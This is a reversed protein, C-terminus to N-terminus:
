KPTDSTFLKQGRGEGLGVGYQRFHAPCMYAWPGMQTKGDVVAETTKGESSCLDCNPIVAVVAERGGTQAFRRSM